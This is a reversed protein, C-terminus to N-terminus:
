FGGSREVQQRIQAQLGVIGIPERLALGLFDELHAQLAQGRELLVLDQLFVAFNEDADVIQQVNEAARFAQHLDDAVLEDFHAILVAIRAAGLDDLGVLVQRELVQDGFFVHDHGQGM